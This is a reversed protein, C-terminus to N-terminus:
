AAATQGKQARMLKRAAEGLNAAEHTFADHLKRIATRSLLRATFGSVHMSAAVDRFLMPGTRNPRADHRLDLGFRRGLATREQRSLGARNERVIVSLLRKLEGIAGGEDADDPDALESPQPDPPAPLSAAFNSVEPEDPGVLGVCRRQTALRKSENAIKGKACLAIFKYPSPVKSADHREIAYLLGALGECIRETIDLSKYTSVRAAKVVPALNWNAILDRYHMARRHWDLLEGILDASREGRRYARLGESVRLKCFNMRVFLATRQEIPLVEPNRDYKDNPLQCRTLEDETLRSRSIETIAYARKGAAAAEVLMATLLHESRGLLQARLDKIAQGADIHLHDALLTRPRKRLRTVWAALYAPDAHRQALLEINVELRDGWYERDIGNSAADM